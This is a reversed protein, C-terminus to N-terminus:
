GEGSVAARQGSRKLAHLLVWRACHPAGAHPNSERSAHQPGQLTGAGSEKPNVDLGEGANVGRDVSELSLLSPRGVIVKPDM